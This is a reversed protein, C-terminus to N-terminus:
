SRSSKRTSATQGCTTAAGGGGFAGPAARGLVGPERRRPGAAAAAGALRPVRPVLVGGRGGGGPDVGAEAASSDPADLPVRGGARDAREALGAAQAALRSSYSHTTLSPSPLSPPLSPTLSPPLSPLAISAAVFRIPVGCGGKRRSERYLYQNRVKLTCLRALLRENLHALPTRGDGEEGGAIVVNWQSSWSSHLLPPRRALAAAEVDKAQIGSLDDQFEIALCGATVMLNSALRNPEIVEEYTQVAAPVPQAGGAATFLDACSSRSSEDRARGAACVYEDWPLILGRRRGRADTTRQDFAAYRGKSDLHTHNLFGSLWRATPEDRLDEPYYLQTQLARAARGQHRAPGHRHRYGPAPRCRTRAPQLYLLITSLLLIPRM